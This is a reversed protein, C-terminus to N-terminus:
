IGLSDMSDATFRGETRRVYLNGSGDLSIDAQRMGGRPIHDLPVACLYIGYARKQVSRKPAAKSEEQPAVLQMM